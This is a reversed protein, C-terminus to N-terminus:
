IQECCACNHLRPKGGQRSAYFFSTIGNKFVSILLLIQFTLVALCDSNLCCSNIVCGCLFRSYKIGRNLNDASFTLLGDVSISTLVLSKPHWFWCNVFIQILSLKKWSINPGAALFSGLVTRYFTGRVEFILITHISYNLKGKM